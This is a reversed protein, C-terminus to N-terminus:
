QKEIGVVEEQVSKSAQQRHFTRLKHAKSRYEAKLAIVEDKNKSQKILADYHYGLAMGYIAHEVSDFMNDFVGEEMYRYIAEVQASSLNFSNAVPNGNADLLAFKGRAKLYGFNVGYRSKTKKDLGQEM